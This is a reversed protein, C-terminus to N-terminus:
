KDPMAAQILRDLVQVVHPVASRMYWHPKTGHQAIALQIRKAVRVPDGIDAVGRQVRLLGLQFGVALAHRRSTTGALRKSPKVEGRANLAQMGRLKVWAILPALPPWHPRSGTEVPAAHPADAVIRHGEAHVSDRLESFAVPVNHRVHNAGERATAAIANQIRRERQRNHRNMLRYAEGFSKVRYETV